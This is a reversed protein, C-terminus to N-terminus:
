CELVTTHWDKDSSLIVHPTKEWENETCMRMPMCPSSNKLSMPFECKDLTKMHYGGGVKISRDDVKNKYHEIQPSSYITKNKGHIEHQHM